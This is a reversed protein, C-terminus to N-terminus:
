EHSKRKIDAATRREIPTKQTQIMTLEYATDQALADAAELAERSTDFHKIETPTKEYLDWEFGGFGRVISPKWVELMYTLKSM